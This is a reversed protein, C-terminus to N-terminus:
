EPNNRCDNRIEQPWHNRISIGAWTEAHGYFPM